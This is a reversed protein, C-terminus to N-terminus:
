LAADDRWLDRHRFYWALVKEINGPITDKSNIIFIRDRIHFLEKEMRFVGPPNECRRALEDEFMPVLKDKMRLETDMFFVSIAPCLAEVRDMFATIESEYVQKPPSSKIEMYLVSCDVRAILDYDGGTRQGKFKVGWVAEALFERRLVEAMFWELTEGFSKIRRTLRHRNSRLEALGTRVLYGLYEGTVEGTSYRTVDELGFGRQHKIVDRLFLRFSYKKMMRYFGNIFRKEPVLLDEGPEMSHIGLGRLRLMAPLGPAALSLEKRLRRLEERLDRLAEAEAREM